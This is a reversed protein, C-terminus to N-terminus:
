PREGSFCFAKKRATGSKPGEGGGGGGEGGIRAVQM